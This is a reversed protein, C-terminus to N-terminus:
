PSCGSMSPWSRRFSPPPLTVQNATLGRAHLRRVLPCLLNQFRPKLQYISPM